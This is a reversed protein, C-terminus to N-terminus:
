FCLEFDKQFKLLLLLQPVPGLLLKQGKGSRDLLLEVPDDVGLTLLFGSEFSPTLLMLCLCEEM